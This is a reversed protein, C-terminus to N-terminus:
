KVPRRNVLDFFGKEIEELQAGIGLEVTGMKTELLCDGRQLRADEIVNPRETAETAAFLEQWPMVDSPAVRLVVGTRDQMKDLAVRVVGALLLPDLQAERHLVRGAIALALNVVEHEVSLFYNERTAAFQTIAHVVRTREQVVAANMESELEVRAAQRGQQIGQEIGQKRALEVADKTM